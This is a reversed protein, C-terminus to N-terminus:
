ARAAIRQLAESWSISGDLYLQWSADLLPRLKAWDPNRTWLWVREAFPVYGPFLRHTIDGATYFIFPHTPDRPLPKNAARFADRLGIFLSDSMTHQVEHFLMEFQGAAGTSDIANSIMIHSPHETTYAGAWNAYAVVDVRVPHWTSRLIHTVRQAAGPGYKALVPKVNDMWAQNGGDHRAWWLTRYVPAATELASILGPDLGSRALSAATDLEVLRDNIAVTASDFLIDKPSVTRQYYTVASEWAARQAASLRGFGATDGLSATVTTRNADLGARARGTIYLFHHLNVWMSSHMDFLPAPSQSQVACPSLAAFLFIVITKM